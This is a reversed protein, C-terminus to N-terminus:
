VNFTPDGLLEKLEQCYAVIPGLKREVETAIRRLHAERASQTSDLTLSNKGFRFQLHPFSQSTNCGVDEEPTTLLSTVRWNTGIPSMGAPQKEFALFYYDSDPLVTGAKIHEVVAGLAELIQTPESNALFAENFGQLGCGNHKASFDLVYKINTAARLAERVTRGGIQYEVGVYVWLDAGERDGGKRVNREDNATLGIGSCTVRCAPDPFVIRLEESAAAIIAEHHDRILERVWGDFEDSGKRGDPSQLSSSYNADSDHLVRAAVELVTRFARDRESPSFATGRGFITESRLQALPSDSVSATRAVQLAYTELWLATHECAPAYICGCGIENSLADLDDAYGEPIGLDSSTPNALQETTRQLWGSITPATRAEPNCFEPTSVLAVAVTM